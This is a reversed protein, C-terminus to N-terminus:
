FFSMNLDAKEAVKLTTAAGLRIPKLYFNALNKKITAEEKIKKFTNYEPIKKCDKFHSFDNPGNGM